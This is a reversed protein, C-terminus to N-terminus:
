PVPKAQAFLQIASNQFRFLANQTFDGSLSLYGNKAGLAQAFM